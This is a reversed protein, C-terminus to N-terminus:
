LNALRELPYQIISVEQKVVVPAEHVSIEAPFLETLTRLMEAPMSDKLVCIADRCSTVTVAESNVDRLMVDHSGLPVRLAELLTGAALVEGTQGREEHGVFPYPVRQDQRGPILVGVFPAVVREYQARGFRRLAEDLRREWMGTLVKMENKLIKQQASFFTYFDYSTAKWLRVFAERKRFVSPTNHHELVAALYSVMFRRATPSIRVSRFLYSQPPLSLLALFIAVNWRHADHWRQFQHTESLRYFFIARTVDIHQEREDKIAVKASADIFNRARLFFPLQLDVPISSYPSHSSPALDCQVM